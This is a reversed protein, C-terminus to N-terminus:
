LSLKCMFLLLSVTSIKRYKPLFTERLLYKLLNVPIFLFSSKSFFKCKEFYRCVPRLRVVSELVPADDSVMLVLWSLNSEATDNSDICESTSEQYYSTLVKRSMDCCSISILVVILILIRFIM